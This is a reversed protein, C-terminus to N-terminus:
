LTRPIAAQYEDEGIEVAAGAALMEALLEAAGPLECVAADVALVIRGSADRPASAAPTIATMGAPYQWLADLAARAEEYSADSTARFYRQSM